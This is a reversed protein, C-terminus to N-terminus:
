FHTAVKCKQLISSSFQLPTGMYCLFTVCATPKRSEWVVFLENLAAVYQLIEIWSLYLVRVKMNPNEVISKFSFFSPQPNAEDEPIWSFLSQVSFLLILFHFLTWFTQWSIVVKLFIHMCKLERRMRANHIKGLKLNIVFIYM